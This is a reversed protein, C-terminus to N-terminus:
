FAVFNTRSRDSPRGVELDVWEKGREIAGEDAEKKTNFLDFDLFRQSHTRADSLVLVAVRSQFRGCTTNSSMAVLYYDRYFCKVTMAFRTEEAAV